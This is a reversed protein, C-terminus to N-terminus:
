RLSGHRPQARTWLTQWPLRLAAHCGRHLILMVLYPPRASSDFPSTARFIAIAQLIRVLPRQPGIYDKFVYLVQDGPRALQRAAQDGSGDDPIAAAVADRCDAVDFRWASWPTDATRYSLPKPREATAARLFQGVAATEDAGLATRDSPLVALKPFLSASGILAIAILVRFQSIMVRV